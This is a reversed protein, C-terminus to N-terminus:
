RTFFSIGFALGLRNDGDNGGAALRHSYIGEVRAAFREALQHKYGTGVGLMARNDSGGGSVNTGEFGVFPRAFWGAGVRSPASSFHYLGGVLLSYRTARVGSTSESRLSFAPEVSWKENVFAGLRLSQAPIGVTTTRPKNLGFEVGGDVGLEYLRSTTVQASSVAPAMVAAAAIFAFTKVIRNRM